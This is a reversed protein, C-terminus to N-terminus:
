RFDVVRLDGPRAGGSGVLTRLLGARSVIGVVRADGLVPATHDVTDRPSVAILETRMVDIAQMM